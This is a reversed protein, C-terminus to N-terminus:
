SVALFNAHNGSIFEGILKSADSVIERELIDARANAQAAQEAHDAIAQEEAPLLRIIPFSAIDRVDICPISSGYAVAKVMPRGLQLHTLAVFLYGSPVKPAKPSIRIVHDSVILGALAETSMAVSGLLGYVQGSRSMLLWGPHVRGGFEDDIGTDVITKEFDPCTEFLEASSVLPVGNDSLIRKFRNPLWAQYGLSAITEVGQAYQSLHLLLDRIDPHYVAGELRRRGQRLISSQVAFGEEQESVEKTLGADSFRLAKSFLRESELTHFHSKNREAVIHRTKETFRGSLDSKLLPFPLTELHEVELHKIIHGYRASSMVARIQPARLYAYLWGHDEPNKAEVRLLDHSILIGSHCESSLTARGVAGSCTVLIDGESVFRNAADSTKSLALWKRPMPRVDFVQTASLFPTGKGPGLQIGKLRSPQWIRAVSQLRAWGGAQCEIALRLGYGSTLFSEAELRRDGKRLLNASLAASQPTHWALEEDAKRVTAPSILPLPAREIARPSRLPKAM